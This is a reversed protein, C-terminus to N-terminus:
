GKGLLRREGQEGTSEQGGPVKGTIDQRRLYKWTSMEGEVNEKVREQGRGGIKGKTLTEKRM